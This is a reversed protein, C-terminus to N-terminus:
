DHHEAADAIEPARQGGGHRQAEDVLEELGHGARHQALDEHQHRQDDEDLLARASQERQAASSHLGSIRPMLTETQIAAVKSNAMAMRTGTSCRIVPVM